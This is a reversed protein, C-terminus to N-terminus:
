KISNGSIMSRIRELSIEKGTKLKIFEQIKIDYGVSKDFIFSYKDILLNVKEKLEKDLKIKSNDYIAIKVDKMGNFIVNLNDTLLSSNM